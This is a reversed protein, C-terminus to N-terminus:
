SKVPGTTDFRLYAHVGALAVKSLGVAITGYYAMKAVSPADPPLVSVGSIISIAEPAAAIMAGYIAELLALTLTRSKKILM